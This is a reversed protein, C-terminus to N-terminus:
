SPTNWRQCYDRLREVRELVALLEPAPINTASQAAAKDWAILVDDLLELM